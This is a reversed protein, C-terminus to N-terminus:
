EKEEVRDIKELGDHLIMDEIVYMYSYKLERAGKDLNEDKELVYCDYVANLIGEFDPKLKLRNKYKKTKTIVAM